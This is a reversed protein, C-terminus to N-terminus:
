FISRTRVTLVLWSPPVEPWGGAVVVDTVEVTTVNVMGLFPWNLVM